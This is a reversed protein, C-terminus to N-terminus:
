ASKVSNAIFWGAGSSAATIFTGWLLDVAVLPLPWARLTAMNTLDYTMYCFFGVLAGYGIAQQLTVNAGGNAFIVICLIYLLYFLVAPIAHFELLPGFQKHYFDRMIVGLWLFDLVGMVVLTAFYLIAYHKM